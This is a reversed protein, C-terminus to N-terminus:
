DSLKRLIMNKKFAEELFSPLIEQEKFKGDELVLIAVKGGKKIFNRIAAKQEPSYRNIKHM